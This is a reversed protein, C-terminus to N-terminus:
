EESVIETGCKRCFKSSDMLPEGCKRCFSIKDNNETDDSASFTKVQKNKKHEDWKTCLTRASQMTLSFLIVAPIAGLIVGNQKLITTISANAFICLFWILAKM